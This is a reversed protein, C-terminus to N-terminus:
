PKKQAGTFMFQWLRELLYGRRGGQRLYNCTDVGSGLPAKQVFEVGTRDDYILWRRVDEYFSKPYTKVAKSSVAFMASMTYPILKDPQDPTTMNLYMCITRVTQSRWRVHHEMQMANIIQSFGLVGMSSAVQDDEDLGSAFKIGGSAPSLYLQRVRGGLQTEEGQLLSDPIRAYEAFQMTLPQFTTNYQQVVEPDFLVPIDPQHTRPDGQLFWLHDPLREYDQIIYHLLTEGERGVNRANRVIVRDAPLPAYIPGGKNIVLVNKVWKWKALLDVLWDLHEDYRSVLLLHDNKGSRDSYAPDAVPQIDPVPLRCEDQDQQLLTM